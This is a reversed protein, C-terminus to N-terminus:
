LLSTGWAPMKSLHETAAAEAEERSMKQMGMFYGTVTGEFIEEYARLAGGDTTCHQCYMQGPELDTLPMGCSQCSEMRILQYFTLCFGDPDRVVFDRLGYFENRPEFEAKAGRGTIEAHYADVDEVHLFMYVGGGPGRRWAEHNERYVEDFDEPPAEGEQPAQGLMVVQGNLSLSAWMPRNEDPFSEDLSFGLVDRYFAVASGADACTLHVSNPYKNPECTM